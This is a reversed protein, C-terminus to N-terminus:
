DHDYENVDFGHSTATVEVHDGFLALFIADDVAGLEKRFSAIGEAIEHARPNTEKLREYIDVRKQYEPYRGVNEYVWSSPKEMPINEFDYRDWEDLDDETTGEEYFEAKLRFCFDHVSFYCTDGDNFYPTYQAWMISTVEPFKTFFEKFADKVIGQLQDTFKKKLTNYETTVEGLKSM